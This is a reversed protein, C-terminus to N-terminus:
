KVYDAIIEVARKIGTRGTNVTIDYDKPDGWRAGTYYNYYSARKDDERELEKLTKHYVSVGRDMRFGDDAAIYFHYAQGFNKLIFNSCRGIFIGDSKQALAEIAKAQSSFLYNDDDVALDGFMTAYPSINGYLNDYTLDLENLGVGKELHASIYAVLKRDYLPIKMKGALKEAIERGGAGYQRGITIIM